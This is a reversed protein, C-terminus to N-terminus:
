IRSVGGLDLLIISPKSHPPTADGRGVMEWPLQNPIFTDEEM